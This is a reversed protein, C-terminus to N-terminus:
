SIWIVQNKIDVEYDAVNNELAEHYFTLTELIVGISKKQKFHEPVAFFDPIQMGDAIADEARRRFRLDVSVICRWDSLCYEWIEPDLADKLGIENVHVIDIGKEQGQKAFVPSLHADILYKIKM